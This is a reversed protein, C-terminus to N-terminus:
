GARAARDAPCWRSRWRRARLAAGFGAATVLLGDAGGGACGDDKKKPPPEAEVVEASTTQEPGAEPEVVPESAVVEADGDPEGIAPGFGYYERLFNLEDTCLAQTASCDLAEVIGDYYTIVPEFHAGDSSVGVAMNDQWPVGCAYVRHDPGLAMCAGHPSGGVAAFTKGGDSSAYVGLQATQVWVKDGDIAFGGIRAAVSLVEARTEGGDESRLLTDGTDSSRVFWAITPTAPDVGLPKLTESGTRPSSWRAVMDSVHVVEITSATQFVGYVHGGGARVGKAEAGPATALVEVGDGQRRVIRAEATADTTAGCAVFGHPDLPDAVLDTMLMTDTDAVASFGCAGSNTMYVGRIFGGTTAIGALEGGGLWLWVDISTKEGTVSQECVFRQDAGDILVGGFNTGLFVEGSPGFSISNSTPITGHAFAAHAACLVFVFALARM